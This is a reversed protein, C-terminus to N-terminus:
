VRHRERLFEYATLPATSGGAGAIAGTLQSVADVVLALLVLPLTRAVLPVDVGNKRLAGLVHSLRIAPILPAACGLGVATAMDM